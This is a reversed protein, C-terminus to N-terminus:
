IPQNIEVDIGVILGNWFFSFRLDATVVSAFMEKQSNRNIMLFWLLSVLLGGNFFRRRKRKKKGVLQVWFSVYFFSTIKSSHMTFKIFPSTVQGNCLFSQTNKRKKTTKRKKQKWEVCLCINLCSINLFSTYKQTSINPNM